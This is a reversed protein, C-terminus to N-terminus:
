GKSMGKLTTWGLVALSAVVRMHVLVTCTHGWLKVKSM